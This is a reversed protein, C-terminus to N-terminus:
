LINSRSFLDLEDFWIEKIDPDVTASLACILITGHQVPEAFIQDIQNDMNKYIATNKVTEAM